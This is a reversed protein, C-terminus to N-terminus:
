SQQQPEGLCAVKGQQTGCTGQSSLSQGECTHLLCTSPPQTGKCRCTVSGAGSQMPKNPLLLIHEWFKPQFWPGFIPAHQVSPQQLMTSAQFSQCFPPRSTTASSSATEENSDLKEVGESEEWGRWVTRSLVRSITTGLVKRGCNRDEILSSQPESVGLVESSSSAPSKLMSPGAQEMHVSAQQHPQTSM